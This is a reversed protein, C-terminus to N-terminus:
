ESRLHERKMVNPINASRGALLRAKRKRLSGAGLVRRPAIQDTRHPASTHCNKETRHNQTGLRPRLLLRRGRREWGWRRPREIPHERGNKGFGHSPRKSHEEFIIKADVRRLCTSCLSQTFDYYIYPREAM